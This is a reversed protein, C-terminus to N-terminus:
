IRFHLTQNSDNTERSRLKNKTLGEAEAVSIERAGFFIKEGKRTSEMGAKKLILFTKSVQRSVERKEFSRDNAMGINLEKLESQKSFVM